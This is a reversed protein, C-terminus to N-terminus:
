DETHRKDGFILGAKQHSRAAIRRTTQLAYQDPAGKSASFKFINVREM